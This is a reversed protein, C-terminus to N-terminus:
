KNGKKLKEWYDHTVIEDIELRVLDELNKLHLTLDESPHDYKIMGHIIQIDNWVEQLTELRM